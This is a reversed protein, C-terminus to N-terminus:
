ATCVSFGMAKALDLIHPVAELLDMIEESFTIRGDEDIVADPKIQIHFIEERSDLRARAADTSEPQRPPRVGSGYHNMFPPAWAPALLPPSGDLGEASSPPITYIVDEAVPIQNQMVPQGSSPPITYIVDGTAAFQNHVLLQGHSILDSTGETLHLSDQQFFRQNNFSM